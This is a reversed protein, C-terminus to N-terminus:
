LGRARNKRDTEKAIEISILKAFAAPDKVDGNINITIGNGMSLSGNLGSLRSLFANAFIDAASGELPVIAERGREGLGALTPQDFIGGKANWNFSPVSLPNISFSGTWNIHPLKPLKIEPIALKINTFLDKLIQVWLKITTVATIINSKLTNFGKIVNTIPSIILNFIGVIKPWNNVIFNVVESVDDIIMQLTPLLINIIVWVVIDLTTKIIFSITPWNAVIWDVIPKLVTVILNFAPILINNIIQSIMNAVTFIIEQIKPWNEIIWDKILVLIKWFLNFIPILITDFVMKINAAVTSITDKIMPWNLIIWNVADRIIPMLFNFAPILITNFVESIKNSIDNIIPYIKPWNEIIWNVVNEIIVKINEIIPKLFSLISAWAANVKDRFEKNKTYCNYLALAIGAVALIVLGIPSLLFSFIRALKGVATIMSGFIFLAPGIAAVIGAIKIILMQTKPSLKSFAEVLKTAKQIIPTFLPLLNKGLTAYLNDVNSKFIRMSNAAGDSTRAFDGQSNKTKDLVYKYRLTVRENESMNKYAKKQGSSLAYATLTADTMIIGLQKLSDGEGTFIGKLADSAQDVGINKFSALDGALGALNTSMKAAASTSIGMGSAMDGFLSTMELAANTSLGFNKTATAAWAKVEKANGKFAVDIKNMNESMDSAASFMKTGLAVIPATLGLALKAGLGSVSSGAKTLSGGFKNLSAQAPGTDVTVLAYLEGVNLAM